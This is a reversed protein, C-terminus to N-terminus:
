SAYRDHRVADLEAFQLSPTAGAGVTLRSYLAIYQNAIENASFRDSMFPVAAPALLANAIAIALASEPQKQNLSFYRCPHGGVERLVPIDSCLVRSGCRLAEIVPFCFGEISSPVIMLECTRYLLCLEADTLTSEFHVYRQLSLRQVLSHLNATEPGEAGVIVLRLRRDSKKQQRLRSFASVLLQLNKNRRHQAVTLLFPSGASASQEPRGDSGSDLTVTQYIRMAKGSVARPARQRLRGLTFDSSCIVADSANLCQRLFIRNFQVRIYGFNGPSDYPYLDHLSCIVPCSFSQRRVPAPFSLHVADAGHRSAIQPLMRYYWYNRSYSNNKVDAAVINVTPSELGFASRFYDVQWRGALLTLQSVAPGTSLCKALNAAHRCIGSPQRASSVASILIHM